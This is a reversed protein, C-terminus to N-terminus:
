VDVVATVPCHDSAETHNLGVTPYREGGAQQCKLSLGKRVIDRGSVQLQKDVLIYDLRSVSDDSEYYHSWNEAVGAFADSLGQANILPLLSEGARKKAKNKNQKAGAVDANLDGLVIPFKGQQRADAALAVVRKAQLARRSDAEPTGDQAKLHNVLFTLTKKGVAVDICLCDRSFIANTAPYGIASKPGGSGRIVAKGGQGEDIHTQIGTIHGDFGKRLLFGVDIGRPDNGDILVMRDFYNKLYQSNFIRLTYLNEVEQVALVDPKSDLVARATNDRQVLTTEYSVLDGARSAISALGVAQVIKEYSRNEWPVDLLAYRNFLNEVNFTTVRISPM